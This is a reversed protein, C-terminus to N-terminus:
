LQVATQPYFCTNASTTGSDLHEFRVDGFKCFQYYKTTRQRFGSKGGNGGDEMCGQYSTINPQINIFRQSQLPSVKLFLCSIFKPCQGFSPVGWVGGGCAGQKPFFSFTLSHVSILGQQHNNTKIIKTVQKSKRIMHCPFYVFKYDYTIKYLVKSM